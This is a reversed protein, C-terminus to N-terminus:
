WSKWPLAGEAERTGGGGSPGWIPARFLHHVKHGGDDKVLRAAAADSGIPQIGFADLKNCRKLAFGARCGGSFPLPCSSGSRTLYMNNICICIYIYISTYINLRIQMPM